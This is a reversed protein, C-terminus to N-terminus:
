GEVGKVIIYRDSYFTYAEVLKYVNTSTYVYMSSITLPHFNIIVFYITGVRWCDSLPQQHSKLHLVSELILRCQNM